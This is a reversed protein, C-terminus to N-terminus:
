NLELENKFSISNRTLATAEQNSNSKHCAWRSWGGIPFSLADSADNTAMLWNWEMRFTKIVIFLPLHSYILRHDTNM